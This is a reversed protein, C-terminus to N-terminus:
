GCEVEGRFKNGDHRCRCAIPRTITNKIDYECQFEWRCLNGPKELLVGNEDTWYGRNRICHETRKFWVTNAQNGPNELRYPDCGKRKPVHATSEEPKPEDARLFPIILSVLKM